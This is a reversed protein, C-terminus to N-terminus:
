SIQKTQRTANYVVHIMQHSLPATGAEGLVGIIDPPRQPPLILFTVTYFFILNTIFCRPPPRGGGGSEMKEITIRFAPGGFIDQVNGRNQSSHGPRGKKRRKKTQEIRGGNLNVSKEIARGDASSRPGSFM